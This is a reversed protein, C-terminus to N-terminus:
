QDTDAETETDVKARAEAKRGSSSQMSRKGSTKDTSSLYSVDDLETSYSERALPAQESCRLPVFTLYLNAALYLAVSLDQLINAQVAWTFDDKATDAGTYQGWIDTTFFTVSNFLVLFWSFAMFVLFVWMSISHKGLREKCRAVRTLPILAIPLGVGLIVNVVGITFNLTTPAKAVAAIIVAPLIAILRSVVARVALPVHMHVFGEMVFSGCFTTTIAAAQGSAVLALAWLICGAGSSDTKFYQCFNLLTIDAPDLPTFGSPADGTTCVGTPGGVVKGSPCTERFVNHAALSLISLNVIWSVMLPLITEFSAYTMTRKTEVRGRPVRTLITGTYLFLNHPMVIAGIIGVANFVSGEWVTPVAWGYFFQSVDLGTLCMEVFVLVCMCMVLLMVLFELVRYGKNLFLLGLFIMTTILSSLVGAYLPWKFFINLAYAFGIVEPIDTAIVIIEFFIWLPYRVIKPYSFRIATALDQRSHLAFRACLWMACWSFVTAWFVIWLQSYAYSAGATIDAYMNGPDVYAVVAMWGPGMFLFFGKFVDWRSMTVGAIEEKQEIDSHFNEDEVKSQRLHEDVREIEEDILPHGDADEAEMERGRELRSEVVTQTDM